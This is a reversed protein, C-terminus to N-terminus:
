SVFENTDKSFAIDSSERELEADIRALEELSDEPIEIDLFKPQSFEIEIPEKPEEIKDINKISQLKDALSDHKSLKNIQYEPLHSQPLRSKMRLFQKARFKNKKKLNGFSDDARESEHSYKRATAWKVEKSDFYSLRFLNLKDTPKNQSFNHHWNRSIDIKEESYSRKKIERPTREVNNEENNLNLNAHETETNYADLNLKPITKKISKSFRNRQAQEQFEDMPEVNALSQKNDVTEFLQTTIKPEIIKCPDQSEESVHKSKQEKNIIEKEIEIVIQM